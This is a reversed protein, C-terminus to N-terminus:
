ICSTRKLSSNSNACSLTECTSTILPTRAQKEVKNIDNAGLDMLVWEPKQWRGLSGQFYQTNFSQRRAARCKGVWLPFAGNITNNWTDEHSVRRSSRSEIIIWVFELTDTPITTTTSRTIELRLNSKGESCKKFDFGLSLQQYLFVVSNCQTYFQTVYKLYFYSSRQQEEQPENKICIDLTHLHSTIVSVNDWDKEEKKWYFCLRM